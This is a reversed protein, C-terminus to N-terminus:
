KEVSSNGAAAGFDYSALLRHLAVYAGEDGPVAPAFRLGEDEMNQILEAVTKGKATFKGDVFEKANPNRLAGLGDHVSNLFRKAEIYQSPPLDKISATLKDVIRNVTNDLEKFTGVDVQGNQVQKIAEPLLTNVLERDKKFNEGGLSVPWNLKGGNRLLGANASGNGPPVVNIRKLLDESLPIDPGKLGKGKLKQVDILLDNLSKASLIENVPPDNQARRLELKQIREFEDQPTPLNNREWLWQELVRRRNDIKERIIQEKMMYTQQTALMNQSLSDIVAASGQLNGSYPNYFYGYGYPPYPPVPPFPNPLSTNSYPSSQGVSFSGYPNVGSNFFSNNNNSYPNFGSPQINFPTRQTLAPNMQFQASAEPVSALVVAGALAAVGFRYHLSQM